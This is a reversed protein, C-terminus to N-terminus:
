CLFDTVVIVCIVSGSM